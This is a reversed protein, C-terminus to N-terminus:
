VLPSWRLNTWSKGKDQKKNRYKRVGVLAAIAVLLAGVAGAVIAAVTSGEVGGSASARQAEPGKVNGTDGLYSEASFCYL